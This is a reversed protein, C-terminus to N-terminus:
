SNGGAGVAGSKEAACQCNGLTFYFTAGKDIEAEARIRGGHKQIIRQVTALGVGTGEFEEASHLRQFVGFLKDAYKMNFGVGNDRVRVVYEHNQKEAAIEISARARPATFKVANALLNSFVVRMLVPDCRMRPLEGVQWDIQRGGLDSSLSEIVERVITNLDLDRFDMAQRGVRSLGLLAQILKEMRATEAAILKLHRSGETSLVSEGDGLLIEAFGHIHRLPARLDHAVGYTFAELDSNAMRLQETRSAVRQELEQNFERIKQQARKQDTLDTAVLCLGSEMAELPIQSLSLQVPLLSGDRRRFTTEIRISKERAAKIWGEFRSQEEAPLLASLSAGVIREAPLQLMEALQRNCFLVTGCTYLTAAGENMREALIRYPEEPSQLTFLSSGRPGEVVIADVEGSRIARLTTQLEEIQAYAQTLEARLNSRPRTRSKRAIM